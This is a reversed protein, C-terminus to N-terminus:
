TRFLAHPPEWNSTISEVEGAWHKTMIAGRTLNWLSVIFVSLFGDAM